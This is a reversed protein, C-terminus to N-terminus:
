LIGDIKKKLSDKPVFGVFRGAEDGNELVILCPISRIGFREALDESQDINVKFFDLKGKYDKSLEEFVPGLMKCPGCWEAWFDVIAKKGKTKADFNRSNLEEVM